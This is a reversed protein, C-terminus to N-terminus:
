HEDGYDVSYHGPVIIIAMRYKLHLM